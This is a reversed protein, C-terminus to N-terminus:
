LMRRLKPGGWGISRAESLYQMPDPLRFAGWMTQKRWYAEQPDNADSGNWFLRSKLDACITARGGEGARRELFGYGLLRGPPELDAAAAADHLPM